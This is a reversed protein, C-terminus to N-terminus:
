EDDKIGESETATASMPQAEAASTFWDPLIGDRAYKELEDATMRDFLANLNVTETREV